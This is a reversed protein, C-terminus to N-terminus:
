DITLIGDPRLAANRLSYLLASWGAGQHCVCVGGWGMEWECAASSEV